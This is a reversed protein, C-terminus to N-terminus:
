RDGEGLAHQFIEQLKCSARAVRKRVAEESAGV